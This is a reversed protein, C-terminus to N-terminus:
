QQDGRGALVNGAAQRPTLSLFYISNGNNFQYVAFSEPPAGGASATPLTMVSRGVTPDFTTYTGSLGTYDFTTGNAALTGQSTVTNNYTFAFRSAGAISSPTGSANLAGGKFDANFTGTLNSFKSPPPYSNGPALSQHLAGTGSILGGVNAVLSSSQLYAGVPLPAMPLGYSIYTSTTSLFSPALLSFQLTGQASNLTVTGAGSANLQYTGTVPVAQLVAGPSNIDVVGATINGLGDATVSGLAFAPQGTDAATGSIQFIYQGDLAALDSGNPGYVTFYYDYFQAPFFESFVYVELGYIGAALPGTEYVANGNVVQNSGGTGQLPGGSFATYLNADYTPEGPQGTSGLTFTLPTGAVAPTPSYPPGQQQASASFELFAAAAFLTTTVALRRLMQPLRFVTM